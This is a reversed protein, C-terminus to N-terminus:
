LGSEKAWDKIMIVAEPDERFKRQWSRPNVMKSVIGMQEDSMKNLLEEASPCNLLLWPSLRGTNIYRIADGTQIQRFFDTWEEYNEMAWQQMLLVNRAVAREASERSTQHRVFEMYVEDRHWRDVKVTGKILFDIFSDIEIARIDICHRGFKTFVIYFTSQMFDEYTKEKKYGNMKYWRQFSMFGIKVYQEDRNMWRRKKECVHVMLTREKVFSKKCFECTYSM